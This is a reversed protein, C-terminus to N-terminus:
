NESEGNGDEKGLAHKCKLLFEKQKRLYDCDADGNSVTWDKVRQEVDKRAESSISEDHLLESIEKVLTHSDTSGFGCEGRSTDNDVLGEIMIPHKVKNFVLQAIKEGKNITIPEKGLNVAIVGVEGRYDEDVTGPTNLVTLGKKIANGSRPRVQCEMNRPLKMKIGTPILVRDLSGLTIPENICAVVDYGASGKTGQAITAMSNVFEIVVVDNRKKKKNSM